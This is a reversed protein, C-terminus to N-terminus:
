DIIFYMRQTTVARFCMSKTVNGSERKLNAHWGGAATLAWALPKCRLSEGNVQAFSLPAMKGPAMQSIWPALPLPLLISVRCPSITIPSSTSM